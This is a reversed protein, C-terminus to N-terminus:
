YCNLRSAYDCLVRAAIKRGKIESAMVSFKEANCAFSSDELMIKITDCMKKISLEDYRIIKAVALESMRSANNEQEIQKLDPVIISPKGLTLLEMATSHGAQTIVLDAAKLYQALNPIINALKVNSPVYDAEFMTFIDFDVEPLLKAVKLIVDFLPRRYLHGGLTVVIYPRKGKEVPTIEDKDWSVLPGVFRTRKMVKHHHSLNPLCISYPPPFDPIIIEEASSLWTKMIWDFSKGFVRILASDKEFFPYFASQNTIVICPLGLKDAAMVPVLRGDAVVCSAGSANIIEMEQKVLQNFTLAWSHNKFITKGVDFVGKEGVLKLEQQLEISPYGANRIRDLAYNYSGILVENPEFERAIALIRSSHGFGESSISFYIKSNLELLRSNKLKRKRSLLPM